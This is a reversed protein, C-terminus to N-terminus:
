SKDHNHTLIKKPFIVSYIRCSFFLWKLRYIKKCYWYIKNENKKGFSVLNRIGCIAKAFFSIIEKQFTKHRTLVEYIYGLICSIVLTLSFNLQSLSLSLSLSLPPQRQSTYIKKKQSVLCDMENLFVISTLRFFWYFTQHYM